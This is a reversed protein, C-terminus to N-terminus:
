DSLQDRFRNAVRVRLLRDTRQEFLTPVRQRAVELPLPHYPRLLSGLTRASSVPKIQTFFGKNGEHDLELLVGPEDKSIVVTLTRRMSAITYTVRARAGVGATREQLEWGTACDAPIAVSLQALDRAVETMATPSTTLVIREAIVDASHGDWKGALATSVFLTIM